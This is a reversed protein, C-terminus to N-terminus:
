ATLTVSLQNSYETIWQHLLMYVRESTKKRWFANLYYTTLLCAPVMLILIQPKKNVDRNFSLFAEETSLSELCRATWMIWKRVKQM